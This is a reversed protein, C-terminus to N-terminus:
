IKEREKLLEARAQEVTIGYTDARYALMDEDFEDLTQEDKGYRKMEDETVNYKGSQLGLALGMVTDDHGEGEAALKWAGSPLQTAVFTNLENKQVALDLLRWGGYHLAENLGSMIAAKSESTTKFAQVNIGMARLAEINPSGISNQEALLTDVNWRTCIQKIRRRQEAWELGNIHLLDVQCKDTFDMVPLATYDVTQGFDLGAGYHHKPNYKAEAPATFVGSIDGFYGGGSTLFCTVPDEPYEQIFFRGLERQKYRRWNVQAKTLKQKGALEREEDTYEIVEGDELPIQYEPDWWWPYFHLKWIGGGHVAEMCRDYFFGQAGNPTSELVVEPNGGQMAGTVIREADPWFAVESGHFDTYTDGRGTDISGATAIAAGSDFDTYTTLVANAYKRGPQLDGFFCHTYFRDAMLRIKTMSAGDHTLTISNRTSTVLRRFIEGQIMTTFGLQRAKLILDHGTRTRQFDEQAANWRFPILRKQKDLIHLFSAAFLRPANAVEDPTPTKKIKAM